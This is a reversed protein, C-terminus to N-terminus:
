PHALTLKWEIGRSRCTMRLPWGKVSILLPGARAHRKIFAEFERKASGCHM